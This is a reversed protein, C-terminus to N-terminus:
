IWNSFIRKQQKEIILEAARKRSIGKKSAISSIFSWADGCVSISYCDKEKASVPNYKKTHKCVTSYGFETVTAISERNHGKRIMKKMQAIDITTIKRGKM